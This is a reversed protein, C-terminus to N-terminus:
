AEKKKKLFRFAVDKLMRYGETKRYIVAVSVLTILGIVVAEAFFVFYSTMAINSLIWKFLIIYLITLALNLAVPVMFKSLGQDFYDEFLIKPEYWFYTSGRSIASGAVVGGIGFYFGMEMFLRAMEESYSYCHVVGGIEEAHAKKMLEYTDQAAERSHIVIPLKLERALEMQRMFWKHQIDRAPEDYYYDLGIEGIAVVKECSLARSRLEEIEEEKMEDVHHPIVGIAAYIYDYQKAFEVSQRSTKMDCGINTIREVSVKREEATDKLEESVPYIFEDTLKGDLLIDRDDDFREDDYHAHTDFIRM